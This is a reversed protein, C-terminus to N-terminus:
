RCRLSRNITRLSSRAHSKLWKRLARHAEDGSPLGCLRRPSTATQPGATSSWSRRGVIRQLGPLAGPCRGVHAQPVTCASRVGARGSPCRSPTAPPALPAPDEVSGAPTRFPPPHRPPLFARSHISPQRLRRAAGRVSRPVPAWLAAGCFEGARAACRGSGAGREGGGPISRSAALGRARRVRRTHVRPRSPRGFSM